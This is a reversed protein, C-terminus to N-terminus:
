LIKIKKIVISLKKKGNETSNEESNSDGHELEQM